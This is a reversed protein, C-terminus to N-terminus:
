VTGGARLDALEDDGIGIEAFVEATHEGLLPPRPGPRWPTRSLRFPPGLYTLTEGLEPHEIPAFFDRALLQENQLIDLVTNQPGALFQHRRAADVIDERTKTTTWATV